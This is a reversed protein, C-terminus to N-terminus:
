AQKKPTESKKYTDIAFTGSEQFRHHSDLFWSFLAQQPIPKSFYYGQMQDCGTTQLADRQEETEIGEAVVSLNLAHALKVVADIIALASGYNAVGATFSKDLKIESVELNQLYTLSFPHLGFDDISVKLKASKFKSLLKKF